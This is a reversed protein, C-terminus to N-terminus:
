DSGTDQGVRGNASLWTSQDPQAAQVQRESADDRRM